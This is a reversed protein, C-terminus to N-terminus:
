EHAFKTRSGFRFPQKEEGIENDAIIPLDLIVEGSQVQKLWDIDRDYRDKVQEFMIDVNSLRLLYWEAINKVIEVLLPNREDSESNSLQEPTPKTKGFIVTADYLPRGDQWNKKNGPRFYSKVQDTAAQIAILVLDNDAETIEDMQYKYMVSKMEDIEVFM